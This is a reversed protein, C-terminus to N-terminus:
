VSEKKLCVAGVACCMLLSMKTDVARYRRGDHTLTHCMKCCSILPNLKHSKYWANCNLTYWTIDDVKAIAVNFGKFFDLKSM